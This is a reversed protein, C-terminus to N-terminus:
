APVLLPQRGHRRAFTALLACALAYGCASLLAMVLVSQHGTVGTLPTALAGVVFTLGGQLASATGAAHRGAAQALTTTAPMSLGNGAVMCALLAWTPALAVSGGAVLAYGFLTVAAITSVTVGIRRLRVAGARVVTLRFTVAAVAM